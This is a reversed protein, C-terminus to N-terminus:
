RKRAVEMIFKDYDEPKVRGKEIAERLDTVTDEIYIQNEELTSFESKSVFEIDKGAGTKQYPTRYDFSKWATVIQNLDERAAKEAPSLNTNLEEHAAKIIDLGNQLAAKEEANKGQMALGGFFARTRKGANIVKFDNSVRPTFNGGGSTKAWVAVDQQGIGTSLLGKIKDYDQGLLNQGLEDLGALLKQGQTVIETTIVGNPGM